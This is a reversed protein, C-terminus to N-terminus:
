KSVEVEQGDINLVATTTDVQVLTVLLSSRGLDIHTSDGVFLTYNKEGSSLMVSSAKPGKIIGKLVLGEPAQARVVPAPDQTPNAAQKGPTAAANTTAEMDDDVDEVAATAAADRTRAHVRLDGLLSSLLFLNMGFTLAYSVGVTFIVDGGRERIVKSICLFLVVVALYHGVFPILDFATAVAASAVLGPLNFQFRQLKVLIWLALTLFATQIVFELGLGLM